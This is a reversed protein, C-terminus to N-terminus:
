KENPAGSFETGFLTDVLLIDDLGTFEVNNRLLEFTQMIPSQLPKERLVRRPCDLFISIRFGIALDIVISLGLKVM